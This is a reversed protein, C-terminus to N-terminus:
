YGVESEIGIIRRVQEQGGGIHGKYDGSIFRQIVQISVNDGTGVLDKIYYAQAWQGIGGAGDGSTNANIRTSDLLVGGSANKIIWRIHVFGAPGNNQHSGVTSAWVRARLRTTRPINNWVNSINGTDYSWGYQSTTASGSLYYAPKSRKGIMESMWGAAGLKLSTRAQAMWRQGTESVASSGVWGSAVSRSDVSIGGVDEIKPRHEGGYCVHNEESM